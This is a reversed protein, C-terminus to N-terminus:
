AGMQFPPLLVRVHVCNAPPLADLAWILISGSQDWDSMVDSDSCQRYHFEAKDCLLDLAFHCSLAIRGLVAEDLYSEMVTGVYDHCLLNLSPEVSFNYFLPCENYHSLSDPEDQCGARCTRKGDMHFRHAACMGNCLVRLIGVALGPRPARAATCIM